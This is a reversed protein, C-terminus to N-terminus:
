KPAQKRRLTSCCFSKKEECNKVRVIKTQDFHVPVWVCINGRESFSFLGFHRLFAVCNWFLWVAEFSCFRANLMLIFYVILSWNFNELRKELILESSMLFSAKTLTNYILSPGLAKYETYCSINIENTIESALNTQMAKICLTPRTEEGSYSLGNTCVLLSLCLKTISDIM